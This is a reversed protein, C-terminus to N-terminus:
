HIIENAIESNVKDCANNYMEKMTQVGLLAFELLEGISRFDEGLTSNKDSMIKNHDEIVVGCLESTLMIVSKMQAESSLTKVEKIVSDAERKLTEYDLTKNM